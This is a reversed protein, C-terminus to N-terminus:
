ASSCYKFIGKERINLEPSDIQDSGPPDFNVQIMCVCSLRSIINVPLWPCLVSQGVMIVLKVRLATLCRVENRVGFSLLIKGSVIQIIQKLIFNIFSVTTWLNNYLIDHLKFTDM